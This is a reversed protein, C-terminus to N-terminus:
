CYRPTTANLVVVEQYPEFSPTIEAKPAPKPDDRGAVQRSRSLGTPVPRRGWVSQRGARDARDVTWPRPVVVILATQPLAVAVGDFTRRTATCPRGWQRCGTELYRERPSSTKAIPRHAVSTRPRLLTPHLRKPASGLAVSSFTPANPVRKGAVM